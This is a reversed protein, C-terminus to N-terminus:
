TESINLIQYQLTLHGDELTSFEAKFNDILFLLFSFTYIESNIIGYM